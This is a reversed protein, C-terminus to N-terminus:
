RLQLTSRHHAGLGRAPVSQVPSQAMPRLEKVVRNVAQGISPRCTTERRGTMLRDLAGQAMTRRARPAGMRSMGAAAAANELHVTPM